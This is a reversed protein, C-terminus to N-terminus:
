LQRKYVDGHREAAALITELNRLRDELIEPVGEESIPLAVYMAGYKKVIPLLTEMREREAPVSNVIARGPYQRLAREMAIPNVTDVM